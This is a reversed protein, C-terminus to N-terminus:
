DRKGALSSYYRLKYVRKVLKVAKFCGYNFKSIKLVKLIDFALGADKFLTALSETKSM